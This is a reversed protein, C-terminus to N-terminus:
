PASPPAKGNRGVWAAPLSRNFVNAMSRTFVGSLHTTDRYVIRDDIVARCIGDLCVYDTFDLVQVGEILKAARKDFQVRHHSPASRGSAMDFRCRDLRNPNKRICAIPDLGARRPAPLDAILVVNDASHSLRRLTRAMRDIMVKRAKSVPVVPKWVGPLAPTAGVTGGVLVLDPKEKRIREMVRNRWRDCEPYDRGVGANYTRVAAPTCSSKTLWTVRWNREDMVKEIANGWHAAHSDGFVVAHFGARKKGFVCAPSFSTLVPRHCPTFRGGGLDRLINAPAPRLQKAKRQPKRSVKAPPVRVKGVGKGGNSKGAGPGGDDGGEGAAAGGSGGDVDAPEVEEDQGVDSIGDSLGGAVTDGSPPQHAAVGSDLRDGAAIVGIAVGTAVAVVAVVLRMLGGRRGVSGPRGPPQSQGRSVWAPPESPPSQSEARAEDGGNEDPTWGGVEIDYRRAL